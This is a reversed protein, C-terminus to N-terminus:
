SSIRYSHEPRVYERIAFFTSTFLFPITFFSILSWKSPTVLITFVIWCAPFISWLAVRKTKMKKIVEAKKGESQHQIKTAVRQNQAEPIISSSGFTDAMLNAVSEVNPINRFGNLNSLIKHNDPYMNTFRNYRINDWWGAFIITGRSQDTSLKIKIDQLENRDIFNKSHDHGFWNIFKEDKWLPSLIIARQDTLGYVEHKPGLFAKLYTKRFGLGFGFFVLGFCVFVLRRILFPNQLTTTLVGIIWCLVFIMWLVWFGARWVGRWPYPRKVPRDAWLLEEGEVLEPEILHRVEENIM